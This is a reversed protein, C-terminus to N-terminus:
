SNKIFYDIPFVPVTRDETQMGHYLPVFHSLSCVLFHSVSFFITARSYLGSWGTKSVPGSTKVTFQSSKFAQTQYVFNDLLADDLFIPPLKTLNCFLSYWPMVKKKSLDTMANSENLCHLHIHLVDM